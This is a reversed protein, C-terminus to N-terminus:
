LIVMGPSNKVAPFM